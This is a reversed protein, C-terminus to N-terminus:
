EVISTVFDCFRRAYHAPPQVSIGEKDFVASKIAHEAKKKLEYCILIDIIGFFYIENGNHERGEEIEVSQIGSSAFSRSNRLSLLKLNKPSEIKAEQEFRHRLVDELQSDSLNLDLNSHLQAFKALQGSDEEEKNNDPERNLNTKSDIGDIINNVEVKEIKPEMDESETANEVHISKVEMEGTINENVKQDEKEKTENKEDITPLKSTNSDIEETLNKPPIPESLKRTPTFQELDRRRVSNWIRSIHSRRPNMEADTVSISPFLKKRLRHLSGFDNDSSSSIQKRENINEENRFPSSNKSINPKTEDVTREEINSNKRVLRRAVEVSKELKLEEYKDKYHIGLLL